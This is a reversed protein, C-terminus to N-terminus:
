RGQWWNKFRDAISPEQTIVDLQFEFEETDLFMCAKFLVGKVERTVNSELYEQLRDSNIHFCNFKQSAIPLKSLDEAIEKQLQSDKIFALKKLFHDVSKFAAVPPNEDETPSAVEADQEIAENREDPISSEDETQEARDETVEDSSDTDHVSPERIAESFDHSILFRGDDQTKLYHEITGQAGMFIDRFFDKNATPDDSLILRNTGLKEKLTQLNTSLQSEEIHENLAKKIYKQADEKDEDAFLNLLGEAEQQLLNAPNIPIDTTAPPAVSPPQDAQPTSAQQQDNQTSVGVRNNSSPTTSPPQDDNTLNIRDLERRAKSLPSSRFIYRIKDIFHRLKHNKYYNELTTVRQELKTKKSQINNFTTPNISKIVEIIKKKTQQSSLSQTEKRLAERANNLQAIIRKYSPNISTM